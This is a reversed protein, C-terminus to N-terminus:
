RTGLVARTLTQSSTDLTRSAELHMLSYFFSEQRKLTKCKLREIISLLIILLYTVYYTSIHYTRSQKM